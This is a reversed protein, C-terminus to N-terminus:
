GFLGAVASGIQGLGSSIGSQSAAAAGAGGQTGAQSVQGLSTQGQQSMQNLHSLYNDFYGTGLDQGYKTLAKATAGSNLNGRAAASGSIADQGSKLRFQYGSSNLYNKFGTQYQEDNGMLLGAEASGANNGRDIYGKTAEGGAGSTLYNYGTLANKAGSSGGLLSGLGGIVGGLLMGM